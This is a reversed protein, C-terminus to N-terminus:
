PAMINMCNGLVNFKILRVRDLHEFSTLAVAYEVNTLGVRCCHIPDM